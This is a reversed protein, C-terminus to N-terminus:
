AAAAVLACDVATQWAAFAKDPTAGCYHSAGGDPLGCLWVGNPWDEDGDPGWPDFYIEPCGRGQADITNPRLVTEMEEM